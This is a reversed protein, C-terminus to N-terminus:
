DHSSTRATQTKGDLASKEARAGADDLRTVIERSVVDKMKPGEDHFINFEEAAFGDKWLEAVAVDVVDTLLIDVIFIIKSVM